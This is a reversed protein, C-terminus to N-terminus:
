RKMQQVLADQELIELMPRINAFNSVINRLNSDTVSDSLKKDHIQLSKGFDDESNVTCFLNLQVDVLRHRFLEEETKLIQDPAEPLWMANPSFMKYQMIAKGLYRTFRFCHPVQCWGIKNLIPKFYARFDYIVSIQRNVTPRRNPNNHATLLLHQFSLPSGIWHQSHICETCVGFYQDVCCHTHGVVLFNCHIEDMYFKEILTSMLANVEKNKNEGCNDFQFLAKRPLQQDFGALRKSLDEMVSLIIQCMLNAGSSVMNDTYYLFVDDVHSGCVVECAIAFYPLYCNCLILTIYCYSIAPKKGIVRNEITHLIDSKPQRHKLGVKPVDGRSSTMADILCFFHTPQNKYEVKSEMRNQEMYEREKMQQQLHLRKFKLIIERHSQDKIKLNRLMDNANNCVDCTPFSGKAGILRYHRDLSLFAKRFCEEGAYTRPALLGATCYALYEEFFETVSSYPM